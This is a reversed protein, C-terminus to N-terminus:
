EEYKWEGKGTALLIAAVRRKMTLTAATDKPSRATHTWCTM